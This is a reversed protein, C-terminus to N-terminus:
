FPLDDDTIEDVEEFFDTGSMEYMSAPANEQTSPLGSAPTSENSRKTGCFDVRRGMLRWAYRKVGEKDTYKRREMSGAIIIEQGKSFYQQVFEATKHWFVCSFFDAKKETDARYPRDVAVSMNCVAVGKSTYRLEPDTAIRGHIITYNLAM